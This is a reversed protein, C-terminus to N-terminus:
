AAPLAAEPKTALEPPVVVGCTIIMKMAADVSMDLEVVQSRPVIV